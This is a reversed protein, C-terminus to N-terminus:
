VCVCQIPVCGKSKHKTLSSRLACRKLQFDGLEDVRLDITGAIKFESKENSFRPSFGHWPTFLSCVRKSIQYIYRHTTQLTKCLLACPDYVFIYIYIGRDM